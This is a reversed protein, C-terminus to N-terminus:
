RWFKIVQQTVYATLLAWGFSLFTGIIIYEAMKRQHSDKIEGFRLISKAAFLFGIGNAQGILLLLMVLSRELQGIYRGGKRLGKLYDGKSAGVPRDGGAVGRKARSREGDEKIEELLPATVLGVLVGGAPVSAILGGVITVVTLYYNEATESLAAFWIGQQISDPFAYALALIVGIHSIQDLIFTRAGTPYFHAKIADLALHSAGLLLLLLLNGGGLIVAAMGMVVLAHLLLVYPQKKREAMWDTQFVFDSLLHAAM